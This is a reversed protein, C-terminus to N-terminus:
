KSGGAYEQATIRVSGGTCGIEATRAAAGIEFFPDGLEFCGGGALAIADHRQLDVALHVLGQQEPVVAEVVVGVDHVIFAGAATDAEGALGGQPRAPGGAEQHFPIILVRRRVQNILRFVAVVTDGDRPADAGVLDHDAV